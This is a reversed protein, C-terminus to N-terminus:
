QNRQPMSLFRFSSSSTRCHGARGRCLVGVDCGVSSIGHCKGSILGDNGTLAVGDRRDVTMARGVQGVEDAGDRDGQDPVAVTVAQDPVAGCCRAGDSEMLVVRTRVVLVDPDPGDGVAAAAREESLGGCSDLWIDLQATAAARSVGPDYNQPRITGVLGCM